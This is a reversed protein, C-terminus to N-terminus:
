RFYAKETSEEVSIVGTSMMAVSIYPHLAADQIKWHKRPRLRLLSQFILVFYRVTSSELQFASHVDRKPNSLTLQEKGDPCCGLTQNRTSNDLRAFLGGAKLSLAACNNSGKTRMGVSRTNLAFSM